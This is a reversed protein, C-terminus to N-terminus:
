RDTGHDERALVPLSLAKLSVLTAPPGIPTAIGAILLQLADVTSGPPTVLFVELGVQVAQFFGFFPIMALNALLQAQEVHLFFGGRTHHEPMRIAPGEILLHFLVHTGLLMLM